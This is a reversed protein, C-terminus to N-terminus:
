LHPFTPGSLYRRRLARLDTQPLALVLAPDRGQDRHGGVVSLSSGEERTPECQCWHVLGHDGPSSCRALCELSCTGWCWARGMEGAEGTTPLDLPAPNLPCFLVSFARLSHKLALRGPHAHQRSMLQTTGVAGECGEARSELQM